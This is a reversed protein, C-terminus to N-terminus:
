IEAHEIQNVPASTNATIDISQRQYRWHQQKRLEALTRFFARSLDDNARSTTEYKMMMILRSDRVKQIAAKIEALNEYAWIVDESEEVVKGLAFRWFAQVPKHDAPSFAHEIGTHTQDELEHRKALNIVIEYLDINLKKLAKLVDEKHVGDLMTKADLCQKSHIQYFDQTLDDIIELVWQADARFIYRARHLLDSDEIHKNLEHKMVRYELQELRIKKWTLIALDHVMASEAIDQPAFDHIFQSELDRFESEDEGPLVILKSYVGTKLSNRSSALKGEPTQPGGAQPPVRNHLNANKMTMRKRSGGSDFAPLM